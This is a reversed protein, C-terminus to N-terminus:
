TLLEMVACGVPTGSLSPWVTQRTIPPREHGCTWTGKNVCFTSVRFRAAFREERSLLGEDHPCRHAHGAQGVSCRADGSPCPWVPCPLQSGQPSTVSGHGRTSAMGQEGVAPWRVPTSGPGLCTDCSKQWTWESMEWLVALADSRDPQGITQDTVAQRCELGHLQCTSHQFRARHGGQSKWGM